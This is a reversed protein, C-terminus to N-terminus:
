RKEKYIVEVLEGHKNRMVVHAGLQANRLGDSALDDPVDRFVVLETHAGWYNKFQAPRNAGNYAPHGIIFM